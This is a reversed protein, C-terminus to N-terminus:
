TAEAYDVLLTALLAAIQEAREKVESLAMGMEAAVQTAHVKRSSSMWFLTAIKRDVPTLVALAVSVDHRAGDVTENYRREGNVSSAARGETYAVAHPAVGADEDMDPALASLSVAGGSWQGDEEQAAIHHDKRGRLQLARPVRWGCQTALEAGSEHMPDWSLVGDLIGEDLRAWGDGRFEGADRDYYGELAGSEIKVRAKRSFRPRFRDLIRRMAGDACAGGERVLVVDIVDQAREAMMHGAAAEALAPIEKLLAVREGRLSGTLNASTLAAYCVRLAAVPNGVPLVPGTDGMLVVGTRALPEMVSLVATTPADGVLAATMYRPGRVVDVDYPAMARALARLAVRRKGRLKDCEFCRPQICITANRAPARQLAAAACAVLEKATPSRGERARIKNRMRRKAGSALGYPDRRFRLAFHGVRPYVRCCDVCRAHTTPVSRLIPPKYAPVTVSM